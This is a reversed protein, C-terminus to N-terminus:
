AAKKRLVEIDAEAVEASISQKLMMVSVVVRAIGPKVYMVIGTLGQLPGRRVVVTEGAAVFPCPAISANASNNTILRVAEIEVDPVAVPQHAYGLVQFIQPTSYIPTMNALDFRGFVYGPFFPRILDPRYKRRSRQIWSPYYAEVGCEGLKRQVIAESCSAIHLAYWNKM